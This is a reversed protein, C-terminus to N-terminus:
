QLLKILEQIENWEDTEKQFIVNGNVEIQFTYRKEVERMDPNRYEQWINAEVYCDKTDEYIKTVHPCVDNHWSNDFFGEPVILETDYHPFESRYSM